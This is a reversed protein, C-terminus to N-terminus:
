ETNFYGQHKLQKCVAPALSTVLKLKPTKIFKKWSIAPVLNCKSLKTIDLHSLPAVRVSVTKIQLEFVHFECGCSKTDLIYQAKSFFHLNSFYDFPLTKM